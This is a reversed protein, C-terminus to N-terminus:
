RTDRSLLWRYLTLITLHNFQYQGWGVSHAILFHFSLFNIFEDFLTPFSSVSMYFYYSIFLLSCSVAVSFTYLLVPTFVTGSNVTWVVLLRRITPLWRSLIFFLKHECQSVSHLVTLKCLDSLLCRTVLAHLAWYRPTQTRWAERSRVILPITGHVFVVSHERNDIFPERGYAKNWLAVRCYDGCSLGAPRSIQNIRQCINVPKGRDAIAYTLRTFRLRSIASCYRRRIRFVHCDPSCRCTWPSRVKGEAQWNPIISLYVFIARNM